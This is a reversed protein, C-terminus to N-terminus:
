QAVRLAVAPDTRAAYVAPYLSALITAGIALTFVYLGIWWGFSGYIVPDLLIGQFSYSEGLWRSFDLGTRELRWMLPLGFAAAVIAGATGILMAELVILRVMRTASMGLASLVAFERRRELVAALQASAVGLLVILLIVASIFRSSAADQELHAEVDPVLEPLTLAVDGPALRPEIARQVAAVHEYDKLVITVEGAGALGTLRELDSRTVQCVSADSEDTGTAVIGVIRFLASQIDGNADVATAVIEDDLASELREALAQGLVLAGSEGSALYRGHTVSRVYRFTTPELDPEVGVLEAPVVHTGMALLVQARARATVVSVGEVAKAEAVARAWDALRLRPDRRERWGGPVIRLHGIGSSAGLRAFLEAKGRNIGEMFLALLCGVAIGVISLATRRANRRVSRAAYRAAVWAM